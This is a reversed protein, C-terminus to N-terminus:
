VVHDECAQQPNDSRQCQWPLARSLAVAQMRASWQQRFVHGAIDHGSLWLHQLMVQHFSKASSNLRAAKACLSNQDDLISEFREHHVKHALENQATLNNGLYRSYKIIGIHQLPVTIM